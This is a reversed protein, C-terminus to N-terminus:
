PTACSYKKRSPRLSFTEKDKEVELPQGYEKVEPGRGRDAFIVNGRQGEQMERQDCSLFLGSEFVWSILRLGSSLGSYNKIELDKIVDSFDKKAMYSLM